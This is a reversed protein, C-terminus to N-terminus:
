FNEVCKIMLKWRKIDMWNLLFQKIQLILMLGLSLNNFKRSIKYDIMDLYLRLLTKYYYIIEQLIRVKDM